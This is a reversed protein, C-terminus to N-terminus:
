GPIILPGGPGGAAEGTTAGGPVEVPM